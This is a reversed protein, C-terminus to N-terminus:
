DHDHYGSMHHQLGLGQSHFDYLFYVSPVRCCGLLERFHLSSHVKGVFGSSSSSGIEEEVGRCERLKRANAKM